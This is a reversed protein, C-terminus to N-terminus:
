EEGHRFTVTEVVGGPSVAYFKQTRLTYILVASDPLIADIVYEDEGEALRECTAVQKPTMDIFAPFGKRYTKTEVSM